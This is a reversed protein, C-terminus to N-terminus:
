TDENEVNMLEDPSKGGEEKIKLETENRVKMVKM